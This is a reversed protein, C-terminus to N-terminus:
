YPNPIDDDGDKLAAAVDARAEAISEDILQEREHEDILDRLAKSEEDDLTDAFLEAMRERNDSDAVMFLMAMITQNQERLRIGQDAVANVGDFLEEIPNDTILLAREFTVAFILLLGFIAVNATAFAVQLTSLDCVANSQCVSAYLGGIVGALGDPSFVALGTYTTAMVLFITVVAMGTLVYMTRGWEGSDYVNDTSRAVERLGPRMRRFLSKLKERM